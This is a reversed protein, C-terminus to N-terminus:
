SRSSRCSNSLSKPALRVRRRLRRKTIQKTDGTKGMIDVLGSAKVHSAIIKTVNEIQNMLLTFSGTADQAKREEELIFDTLSPITKYM